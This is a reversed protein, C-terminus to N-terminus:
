IIKKAILYEAIQVTNTAAGKRLNDSVIWLNLTRKQTFDRRIRGVFVDNKKNAYIPMPYINNKIDDVVKVGPTNELIKRVEAIKFDLKFSINVSESHGGKVPVRAATAVVNIKKDLIKKTENTLKMEEKTYGNDMFVDCHPLVNNYIQHPYIKETSQNKEEKELQSLAKQGTGTVSQYTSVVVRSAQFHKHLPALAMLLQITSCNPNSIIFDQPTIKSGNIEPIILKHNPAMRWFSSNDIVRCGKESLIPAIKKSVDSGASLLALDLNIQLLKDISIVTHQKGLFKISSGTSKNSAVFYIKTIPFERTELAKIIERGVMGTAGIIALRM